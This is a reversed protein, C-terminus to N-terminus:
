KTSKVKTVAASAVALIAVARPAEYKFSKALDSARTPDQKALSSVLLSLNLDSTDLDILKLGSSTVLALSLVGAEGSFDEAANAARIAETTVEWSRIIDAVLFQRAVGTILLARNPDSEDIRRAEALAEELLELAQTRDSDMRLRAIHLYAWTRQSHTLSDSKALRLAAASNKKALASRLLSIDVYRRAVERRYVDEIKDAIDQATPNGAVALIAAVDAYIDDRERENKARDAREQLRDLVTRADADRVIGQTMLFDDGDDVITNSGQKALATLHSRLAVATDPAYQEFLPLLRKIVMYKGILGASTLDQDPPPLPRLLISAAVGFFRTRVEAPLDPATMAELAPSWRIGGDAAFTLYMGPTFAYSSLGSVTNADATLDLEARALLRIFQTDALAANLLRLGSLFSISAENVSDLAPAAFEFAKEPKNDTLLQHAFSLRKSMQDSMNWSDNISRSTQTAAQEAAKAVDDNVKALFEDGLAKDRRAAFNLVEARSDGGSGRRMAVFMVPGATNSQGVGVAEGEDATEAAEWARRFLIRAREPDVDWLADASRALVRARLALDKYSRAEDALSMIISAAFIRRQQAELAETGVIEENKKPTPPPPKHTPIRSQVTKSQSKAQASLSTVQMAMQKGTQAPGFLGLVCFSSFFVVINFECKPM